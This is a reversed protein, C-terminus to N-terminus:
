PGDDDDGTSCALVAAMLFQGVAFPLGMMWQALSHSAGAAAVMCLGAVLYWAGVLRAARPLSRAAAFVGVAVLVQWLGPLMWATDPSFELVAFGIAAGAVGVPLFQELANANMAPALGAHHRRSRFLMGVGILTAAVIATAAWVAIFLLPDAGLAAWWISQAVATAAALAGTAAVVHPGFGRYITGAAIRSRIEAIDALAHDIERM